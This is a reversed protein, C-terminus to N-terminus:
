SLEKGLLHNANDWAIRQWCEPSLELAEFKALEVRPHQIPYETGFLLRDPGLRELAARVVSSYGGSTEFWVNAQSRVLDVAYYDINGIGSHGLVFQVRPHASALAVLDAVRCGPRDLCVLYVSHGVAEAVEVLARTRDETLTVGHVAPSIELGAFHEARTRYDAPDRHPNAFWFPVLRGGSGACAELVADNDADSEVHGGEILQRSLRDLDITGGACVVARAIGCEDMTALMRDLSGPRPVLRAHFDLVPQPTPMM